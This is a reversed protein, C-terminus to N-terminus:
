HLLIGAEAACFGPSAPSWPRVQLVGRSAPPPGSPHEPLLAAARQALGAQQVTLSEFPDVLAVKLVCDTHERGQRLLGQLPVCATGVHLSSEADFLDVSLCRQALHQVFSAHRARLCAAPDEPASSGEVQQLLVSDHLGDVIYKLM